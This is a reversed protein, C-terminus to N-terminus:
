NEVYTGGCQHRLFHLVTIKNAYKIAIPRNANTRFLPITRIVAKDTHSWAIVGISYPLHPANLAVSEVNQPWVFIFDFNDALSSMEKVFLGNVVRGSSAINYLYDPHSIFTPSKTFHRVPLQPVAIM